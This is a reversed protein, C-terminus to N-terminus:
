CLFILGPRPRPSSTLPASTQSHQPRREYSDAGIGSGVLHPRGGRLDPHSSGCRNPKFHHRVGVFAMARPQAGHRELALLEALIELDNKTLPIVSVQMDAIQNLHLPRLEARNEEYDLTLYWSNTEESYDARYISLEGKANRRQSCTTRHWSKHSLIFAELQDQTTLPAKLEYETIAPPQTPKAPCTGPDPRTIM